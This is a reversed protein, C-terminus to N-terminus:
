ENINVIINVGKRDYVFNCNSKTKEFTRHSVDSVVVSVNSATSSTNDEFSQLTLFLIRSNSFKKHAYQYNLIRITNDIGRPM